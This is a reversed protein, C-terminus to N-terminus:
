CESRREGKCCFDDPDPDTGWYDCWVGGCRLARSENNHECDKCRVLEDMAAAKGDAFGKNYQDRDYHLARLLEDKDVNPVVEYVANFVMDDFKKAADTAMQKTALTIPSEYM